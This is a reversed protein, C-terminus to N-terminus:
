AGSNVVELVPGVGFGTGDGLCGVSFGAGAGADGSGMISGSWPLVVSDKTSDKDGHDRIAEVGGVSGISRVGNDLLGVRDTGAVLVASNGVAM